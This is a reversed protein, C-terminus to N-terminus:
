RQCSGSQIAGPEEQREPQLTGHQAVRAVRVETWKTPTVERTNRCIRSAHIDDFLASPVRSKGINRGQGPLYRRNNHSTTGSQGEEHGDQCQGSTACGIDNRSVNGSNSSHDLKKGTLVQDKAIYLICTFFPSYYQPSIVAWFPANQNGM